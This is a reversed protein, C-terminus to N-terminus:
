HGFEYKKPYGVRWGACVYTGGTPAQREGCRLDYTRNDRIGVQCRPDFGTKLSRNVTVPIHARFIESKREHVFKHHLFIIPIQYFCGHSSANLVRPNTDKRDTPISFRFPLETLESPQTVAPAGRLIVRYLGLGNLHTQSTCM